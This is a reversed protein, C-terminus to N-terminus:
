KIRLFFTVQIESPRTAAYEVASRLPSLNRKVEGPLPTHSLRTAYDIGGRVNVYVFGQPKAPMGSERLAGKYEESQALSPPNGKLTKIGAPFDSIVFHKGVNAYYLNVEGADVVKAPVGAIRTPKPLAPLELQKRYKRLLSDLTTMGNTGRAPEAIFTIEPIKGSPAPRVYVANEGEILLGVSRLVGSYRHIEPVDQLIPNDELKEFAGKAGHFSFYALADKPVQRPLAPGFPKTATIGEFAPGPKGHVNMDWRIGESTARLNTAFWDLRGLKPFIKKFDPDNDAERKAIDMLAEGDVYATFLWEDPYSDMAERFPKRDSLSDGSGSERRFRDIMAQSVALVTWDGIKERAVDEGSKRLLQEFKAEDKPQMLAVFNEGDNEFDLWVIDIEPGLAPKVDRDWKVGETNLAQRFLNLAKEKDPFRGALDDVTQWQSSDLDTNFALFAPASAPVLDAGGVGAGTTGGCGAAVLAVAALVGALWRMKQM